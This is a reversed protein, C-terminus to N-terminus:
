ITTPIPRTRPKTITTAVQLRALVRGGVSRVVKRGAMRDDIGRGDLLHALPLPQEGLSTTGAAM